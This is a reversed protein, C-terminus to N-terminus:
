LNQCTKNTPNPISKESDVNLLKRTESRTTVKNIQYEPKLNKIGDFDIRSLADAGNNDSGKIYEIEFEFEELDLRVRVLKSSPNKMSFLYTLPRHDTRVLFKTGYVYIKFYTIAWHIAALEREIVSKNQEGKTFTRSAYSVPLQIGNHDQSLVAGCAVKSADTTICFSKSFDPYQLIPSKVLSNKLYQFSKECEKTWIFKANKRSLCNLPYAYDSFNPIFRRYYNCFAVFRRAADSDEPRPDNTITEFKSNDPLIGRNTCRCIDWILSKM